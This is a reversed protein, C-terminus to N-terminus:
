TVPRGAAAPKALSGSAVDLSVPQGDARVKTLGPFVLSTSVPLSDKLTVTVTDGENVCLVPGPYQFGGNGNAYGWMFVSNGDPTSIYGPIATLVFSTSEPATTTAAVTAGSACAGGSHTGIDEYVPRTQASGPIPLFLSGLAGAAVLPMWRFRKLWGKIVNKLNSM